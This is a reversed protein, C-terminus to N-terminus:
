CSRHLLLLSRVPWSAKWTYSFASFLLDALSLLQLFIFFRFMNGSCYFSSQLLVTGFFCGIALFFLPLSGLFTEGSKQQTRRAACTELPNFDRIRGTTPLIYGFALTDMTLHFRFSAPHPFLSVVPLDRTQRVSIEYLTICSPLVAVWTLAWYSCPIRRSLHPLHISLFFRTTGLSTQATRRSLPLWQM